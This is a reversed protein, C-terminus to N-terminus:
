RRPRRTTPRTTRASARDHGGLEPLARAGADAAGLVHVDARDGDGGHAGPQHLRREHRGGALVRHASGGPGLLFSAPTPTAAKIQDRVQELLATVSQTTFLSAAAVDSRAVGAPLKTLLALDLDRFYQRNAFWPGLPHVRRM